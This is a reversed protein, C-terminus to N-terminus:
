KGGKQLEEAVCEEISKPKSGDTDDGPKDSNGQNTIMRVLADKTKAHENVLQDHTEGLSDLEAVLGNVEDIEEQSSEATLKASFKGKLAELIEKFTKM